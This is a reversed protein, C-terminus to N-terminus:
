LQDKPEMYFILYFQYYLEGLVRKFCIQDVISWNQGM